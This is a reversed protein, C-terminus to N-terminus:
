CLILWIGCHLELVLNAAVDWKTKSSMLEDPVSQCQTIVDPLHNINRAKTRYFGVQYIASGPHLKRMM